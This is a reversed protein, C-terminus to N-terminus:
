ERKVMAQFVEQGLDGAAVCVGGLPEWGEAMEKKVATMLLDGHIEWLIKYDVIKTNM